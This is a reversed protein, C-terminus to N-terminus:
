QINTEEATVANSIPIDVRVRTGQGKASTLDAKGGLMLAREVIGQLGLHRNGVPERRDFGIGNDTIELSLVGEVIGYRIGVATARAHKAINTLAEQAVRYLSVNVNPSLGDFINPKGQIEVPTGHSEQFEVALRELAAGLGLDELIPPHLGHALRSIAEITSSTLDRLSQAREQAQELTPSRSLNRLGVLISTLAQGAEDHLERAVRRRETEQAAIVHQLVARRIEEARRGEQAAKRETLDYIIQLRASGGYLGVERSTVEVDFLSGDSKRHQTSVSRISDFAPPDHAARVELLSLRMFAERSYGYKEIAADNVALFKRTETDVVWCPLPMSDFLMRYRQESARLADEAAKARLLTRITAVLEEPEVPQTLYADAGAELGSVKGTVSVVQASLHLIPISATAADSKLRRCIEIGNIDPLRIDLIVLDPKKAAASLAEQGTGCQVVAFGARELIRSTAYRQAADDDTVAITFQERVSMLM